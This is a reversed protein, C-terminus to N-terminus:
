LNRRIKMVMVEDEWKEELIEEEEEECVLPHIKPVHCCSVLLERLWDKYVLRVM